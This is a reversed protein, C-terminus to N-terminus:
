DLSTLVPCPKGIRGFLCTNNRGNQSRGTRGGQVYVGRGRIDTWSKQPGPTLEPGGSRGEELSPTTGVNQKGRM